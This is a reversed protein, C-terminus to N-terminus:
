QELYAKIKNERDASYFTQKPYWEFFDSSGKSANCSICAPIINNKTYEGGHEFPIVHDMSARKIKKGCYACYTEGDVSFYEKCDKWQARTFDAKIGNKKSRSRHFTFVGHEKMAEPNAEAWEKTRIKIEGSHEAYYQKNYADIEAKHEKHYERKHAIVSDHHTRQYERAKKNACLKCYTRYGGNGCKYYDSLPKEFGCVSCVRSPSDIEQQRTREEANEKQKYYWQLSAKRTQERHKEKYKATRIAACEKCYEKYGDKSRKNKSFSEIPKEKKCTCCIKTTM